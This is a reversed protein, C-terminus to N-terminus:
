LGMNRCGVIESRVRREFGDGSPTVWRAGVVYTRTNSYNESTNAARALMWIRVARIRALPVTYGLAVGGQVDDTDIFGDDVGATNIDLGTELLGDNDKDVAWIINGAASTDIEGDNDNDFAYAFGLAEVHSAAPEHGTAEYHGATVTIVPATSAAVRGLTQINGATSLYNDYAVHEGTSTLAGDPPDAATAGAIDRTFYLLDPTANVIGANANGTPDYGASRIDAALVELGARLNQQIEGIREQSEQTRTNMVFLSLVATLVFASILVVVLLEAMTFGKANGLPSRPLRTRQRIHVFSTKM